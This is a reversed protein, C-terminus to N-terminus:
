RTKLKIKVVVPNSDETLEKFPPKNGDEFFKYADVLFYLHNNHVSFTKNRLIYAIYLEKMYEDIDNIVQKNTCDSIKGTNDALAIKGNITILLGGSPLPLIGDIKKAKERHPDLDGVGFKIFERLNMFSNDTEFIYRPSITVFDQTSYLTDIVYHKFWLASDIHIFNMDPNPFLLAFVRITPNEDAATNPYAYFVSGTNVDEAYFLYPGLRNRENGGLHDIRYICYDNFYTELIRRGDKIAFDPKGAFKGDFTYSVFGGSTRSLFTLQRKKVDFATFDTVYKLAEGPGQGESFIKKIFVGDPTYKYINTQDIYITDEIIRVPTIDIDGILPEESLYIYSVSEAFQSLKLPTDTDNVNTVDITVPKLPNYTDEEQQAKKGSNCGYFVTFSAILFRFVVFKNKKM